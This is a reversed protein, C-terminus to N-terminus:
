RVKVYKSWGWYNWSDTMSTLNPGNRYGNEGRNKTYKKALSEYMKSSQYVAPVPGKGDGFDHLGAYVGVHSTYYLLSTANKRFGQYLEMGPVLKDYGGLTPIYGYYKCHQNFNTTSGHYGQDNRAEM